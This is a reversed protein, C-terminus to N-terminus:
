QLDGLDAAIAIAREGTEVAQRHDVTARLHHALYASVWGLRSRDGLEEALAEAQRLYEFARDHERLAWFASRLESRIDIAVETTQTCRPFHELAFLAQEFHSIAAPVASRAM